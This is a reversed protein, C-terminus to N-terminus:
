LIWDKRHRKMFCVLYGYEDGELMSANEHEIDEWEGIKSTWFGSRLQRAVHEVGFDPHEYLAVKEFGEERERGDCSHYGHLEFVRIVTERSNDRAVGPPWYCAYKPTPWWWQKTDHLAWAICNYADTEISTIEHSGTLLGPVAAQIAQM